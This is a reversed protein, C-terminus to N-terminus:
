ALHCQGVTFFVDDNVASRERPNTAGSKASDQSPSKTWLEISSGDSLKSLGSFLRGASTATSRKAPHHSSGVLRRAAARSRIHPSSCRTPPAITVTIGNLKRGKARILVKGVIKGVEQVSESLQWQDPYHDLLDPLQRFCTRLHIPPCSSPSLSSNDRIAANRHPLLRVAM